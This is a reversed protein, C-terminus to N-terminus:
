NAIMSPSSSQIMLSLPEGGCGALIAASKIAKVLFVHYAIRPHCVIEELSQSYQDEDDVPNFRSDDLLCHTQSPFVLRFMLTMIPGEETM